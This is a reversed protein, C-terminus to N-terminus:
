LKQSQSLPAKIAQIPYNPIKLPALSQPNKEEDMSFM